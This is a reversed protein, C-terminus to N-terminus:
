SIFIAFNSLDLIEYNFMKRIQESKTQKYTLKFNQGDWHRIFMELWESYKEIHINYWKQKWIIDKLVILIEFFLKVCLIVM